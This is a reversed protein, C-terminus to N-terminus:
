EPAVLRAFYGGDVPGAPALPAPLQERQLALEWRPHAALFARM